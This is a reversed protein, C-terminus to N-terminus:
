MFFIRFFEHKLFNDPSFPHLETLIMALARFDLANSLYNFKLYFEPPFTVSLICSFDLLALNEKCRTIIKIRGKSKKNKIGKRERKKSKM